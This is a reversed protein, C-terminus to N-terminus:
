FNIERHSSQSGHCFIQGLSLRKAQQYAKCKRDQQRHQKLLKVIQDVSHDYATRQACFRQSRDTGGTREVKHDDPKAATDAGSEGNGHRLGKTPFFFISQLAVDAVGEPKAQGKGNDHSNDGTQQALGNQAQHVGRLIDQVACIEINIDNKPTNRGSVKVIHQGAHDPCHSVTFGGDKKRAKEERSFM